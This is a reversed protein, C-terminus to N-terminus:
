WPIMYGPRLHKTVTVAEVVPLEKLDDSDAVLVRLTALNVWRGKPFHSKFTKQGDKIESVIPSVKVAGGFMFTDNVGPMSINNVVNLDTPFHFILSDICTGGYEYSEFLCTYMFRLYQMRDRMSLKVATRKIDDHFGLPGTVYPSSPSFDQSHRALPFFTALQIWRLCLEENMTTRANDKDDILGCVDVGSHTFGMMNMTMLHPIANQLSAWTRYKSKIAYSAFQGTGTFTSRTVLFPRKDFLKSKPSIVMEHIANYTHQMM